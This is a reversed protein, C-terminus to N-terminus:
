LASRRDPLAPTKNEGLQRALEAAHYFNGPGAAQFCYILASIDIV